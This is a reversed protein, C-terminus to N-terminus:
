DEPELPITLHEDSQRRATPTAPPLPPDDAQRTPAEGAEAAGAGRRTPAEDGAAGAPRKPQATLWGPPREFYPQDDTPRQRLSAPRRPVARPSDEEAASLGVEGAPDRVAAPRTAAAAGRAPAPGPARVPAPAVGAGEGSIRVRREVVGGEGFGFDDEHGPLPPEPRQAARIRSGAYALFAAAALAVFIGWEIGSISAGPGRISTTQKDFIRWVVLVCAWGGAAMIVWGDGGPLHFARGEGRQFLLTLVGTSVLLVAAEVFSFAAWGTVSTSAAAAGKTGPVIVTEQYWPLFLTVFLGISAFAAIRREHPLGRSVRVIRGGLTGAWRGVGAATRNASM